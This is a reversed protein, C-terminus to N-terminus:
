GPPRGRDLTVNVIKSSPVLWTPLGTVRLTGPVRADLDVRIKSTAPCPDNTVEFATM